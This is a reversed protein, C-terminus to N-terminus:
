PARRTARQPRRDGHRWGRASSDGARPTASRVERGRRRAGDVRAGARRAECRIRMQDAPRGPRALRERCGRPCARSRAHQRRPGSRGTCAATRAAPAGGCPIPRAGRATDGRPATHAERPGRAPPLGPRDNEVPRPAAPAMRAGAASAARAHSRAAPQAPPLSQPVRGPQLRSPVGANVSRGQRPDADAMSRRTGGPPLRTAAAAADLFTRRTRGSERIVAGAPPRFELHRRRSGSRFPRTLRLPDAALQLATIHETSLPRPDARSRPPIARAPTRGGGALATAVVRDSASSRRTQLRGIRRQGCAAFGCAGAGPATGAAGSRHWWGSKGAVPGSGRGATAEWEGPRRVAAPAAAIRATAARQPGPDMTFAWCAALEVAAALTAPAASVRPRGGPSGGTRGGATRSAPGRPSPWARAAAACAVPGTASGAVAGPPDGGRRVSRSATASASARM